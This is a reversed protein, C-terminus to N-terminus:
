LNNFSQGKPHREFAVFYLDVVHEKKSALNIALVLKYPDDPNYNKPPKVTMGTIVFGAPAEYTANEYPSFMLSALPSTSEARSFAYIHVGNSALIYTEGDPGLVSVMTVNSGMIIPLHQLFIFDYGSIM